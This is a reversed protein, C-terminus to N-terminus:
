QLYDSIFICLKLIAAETKNLKEYSIIASAVETMGGLGPNLASSQEWILTNFM